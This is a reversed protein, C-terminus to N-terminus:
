EVVKSAKQGSITLTMREQYRPYAYGRPFEQKMKSEGFGSILKEM